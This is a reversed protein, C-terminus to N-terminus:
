FPQRLNLYSGDLALLVGFGISFIALSKWAVILHKNLKYLENQLRTFLWTCFNRINGLVVM